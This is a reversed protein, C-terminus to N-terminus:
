KIVRPQTLRASHHRACRRARAGAWLNAASRRLHTHYHVCRRGGAPAHARLITAAALVALAEVLTRGRADLLKPEQLMAELRGHARRLHQDDGAAVALEEMVMQVAAPERQLVRVVDLAMVNGSGEWISNVPVERYLRALPAEEVYGNGGLCEMAEAALAPAIKCVWYKTVPTMLRRWAAARPDEARDFSRALRFALATAAEADLAMDALVQQMLPQEILKKDFVSRHEAHHIANALAFRMLGASAVACDLRTYTVMEIITAVGRGEEGIARAYAGHFEVESSANSRNGLKDKLRQLRLANVSGDPLFRPMLFCTLGEPAQALVLFADSM